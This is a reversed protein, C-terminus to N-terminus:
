PAGPLWEPKLVAQLASYPLLFEPQGLAYPAIDYADYKFRLGAEALTFNDTERFPWDGALGQGQRWQAHAQQLLATLAPRQGAQVVDDLVLVKGSRRDINLYRTLPMGHAGGTYQNVDLQLALLPGQQRLVRANLWLGYHAGADALFQNAYASVTASASPETAAMKLLAQELVASLEPSAPFRLYDAKVEACQRGKCGPRQRQWRVAETALPLFDQLVVPAPAPKEASAVPAPPVEKQCGGLLLAALVMLVGARGSWHWQGM